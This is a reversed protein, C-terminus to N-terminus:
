PIRCMRFLLTTYREVTLAYFNRVIGIIAISLTLPNDPSADAGTGDSGWDWSLIKQNSSRKLRVAAAGDSFLPFSNRDDQRLVKSYADATILLGNNMKNLSMISNIVNLGIVFGSCGQNIDFGLATTPLGLESQLINATAPLNQDPNQTVFIFCEIKSADFEADKSKLDAVAARAMFIVPDDTTLHRCGTFGLKEVLFKEDFGFRDVLQVNTYSTPPSFVGIHDPSFLFQTM